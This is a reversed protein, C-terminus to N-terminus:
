PNPNSNPNPNPSPSPNPNPNPTLNPNTIFLLSLMGTYYRSIIDPIIDPDPINDHFRVMVLSTNDPQLTIHVIHATHTQTRTLYAEAEGRVGM